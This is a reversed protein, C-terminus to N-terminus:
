WDPDELFAENTESEIQRMRKFFTSPSDLQKIQRLKIASEAEEKNSNQDTESLSEPSSFSSAKAAHSATGEKKEKSYSSLSSNKKNQATNNRDPAHELPNLAGKRFSSDFSHMEKAGESEEAEKKNLKSSNSSPSSSSEKLLKLLEQLYKEWPVFQPDLSKGLEVAKIGDEIAGPPIKTKKGLDITSQAIILCDEKTLLPKRSLTDIKSVFNEIEEGKGPAPALFLFFAFVLLLGSPSIKQGWKLRSIKM